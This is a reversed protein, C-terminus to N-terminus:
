SDVSAAKEDTANADQKLQEVVRDINELAAVLPAKDISDKLLGSYEPVHAALHKFAADKDPWIEEIYEEERIETVVGDRDKVKTTKTKKKQGGQLAKLVAKFSMGTMSQARGERIAKFFDPFDSMYSYFTPVSIQLKEAIEYDCYGMQAFNRAVENFRPDYKSPRGTIQPPNKPRGVGTAKGAGNPVYRRPM